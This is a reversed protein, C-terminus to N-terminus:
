DYAMKSNSYTQDYDIGFEQKSGDLNWRGKHKYVEGTTVEKKTQTGV